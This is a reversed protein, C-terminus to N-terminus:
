EEVCYKPSVTRRLCMRPCQYNKRSWEQKEGNGFLILSGIKNLDNMLNFDRNLMNLGKYCSIKSFKNIQKLM